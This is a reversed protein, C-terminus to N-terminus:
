ERNRVYPALDGWKNKHRIEKDQEMMLRIKDEIRTQIDEKKSDGKFSNHDSNFLAYFIVGIFFLKVCLLFTLQVVADWNVKIKVPEPYDDWYNVSNKTKEEEILKKDDDTLATAENVFSEWDNDNM